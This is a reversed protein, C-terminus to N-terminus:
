LYFPLFAPLVLLIIAVASCPVIRLIWQRRHLINTEGYNVSM